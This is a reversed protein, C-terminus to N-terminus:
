SKRKKDFKSNEERLTNVWEEFEDIAEIEKTNLKNINSNNLESEKKYQNYKMQNLQTKIEDSEEEITTSKLLNEFAVNDQEVKEMRKSKAVYNSSGEKEMLSIKIQMKWILYCFFGLFLSKPMQIKLLESYYKTRWFFVRKTQSVNVKLYRDSLYNIINQFKNSM